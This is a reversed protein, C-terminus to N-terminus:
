HTNLEIAKKLNESLPDVGPIFYGMLEGKRNILYKHFDGKAETQIRPSSTALWQYLASRNDGNVEMKETIPFTLKYADRLLLRLQANDKPEKGFSNSPVGIVVLSDRYQQQLQELGVLQPVQPSDTAINVLLIKKGGFSAFDITGGDIDLVKFDYVTNGITTSVTLFLSLLILKFM